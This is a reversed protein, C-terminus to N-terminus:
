VKDNANQWEELLKLAAEMALQRLPKVAKATQEMRERVEPTIPDNKYVPTCGALILLAVVVALMKLMTSDRRM